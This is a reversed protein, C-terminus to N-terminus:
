PASAPAPRIVPHEGTEALREVLRRRLPPLAERAGPDAVLNRLEDPDTELDYLYTEVYEDAAPDDWGDAHPAVVGYKWRPTRLARGVESESVQVLVDDPRDDPAGRVLPLLSRGHMDAPVPLGAADLLTPPLDIHNVLRTIPRGTGLGPGRLATPVRISADHCSRKYESNRTKFHCGHDSTYLVVTDEALGHEELAALLRGLCEDLRRVMGYYGGLHEAANGGLAALDGPTWGGAYREGYGEPAPYDDRQNQHHPELYSLFLFFPNRRERTAYDIAADTLADARYGALDHARGDADYLTTEYADSTFELLNAALWDRYGGRQEPRVPGAVDTDALHWKGIYGTDYGAAAFHHALTPADEPLPINNRYVGTQAPYRGTQLSARSPACVPQCTFSNAVHVGEAAMRDFNPTLGLPNGHVGTTDWRQQDTFFVVVNPHRGGRGSGERGTTGATGRGDATDAM